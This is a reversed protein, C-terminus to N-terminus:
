AAQPHLSSASQRDHDTTAFPPNAIALINRFLTLITLLLTREAGIRCSSPVFLCPIVRSVYFSQVMLMRFMVRALIFTRSCERGGPVVYGNEIAKAMWAVLVAVVDGDISQAKYRYHHEIRASRHEVMPAVTSTLRVLLRVSLVFLRTFLLMLDSETWVGNGDAWTRM